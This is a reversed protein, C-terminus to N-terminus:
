SQLTVIQWTGQEGNITLRVNNPIALATKEVIAPIGYERAVIAGHSTQGGKQFIIGACKPFLISYEPSANPFIAITGAPIDMLSSTVQIVTGTVTGKSIPTGRGSNQVPTPQQTTPVPVPLTITIPNGSLLQERTANPLADTERVLDMIQRRLLAIYGLAKQKLRSRIRQVSIVTDALQKLSDNKLEGIRSQPTQISKDIQERIREPIEYWRPCTIEFDRDARNGYRDMYWDFSKEGSKVLYQDAVSHFIWDTEAVKSSIYSEITAKQAGSQHLSYQHFYEAVYGVAIVAPMVVTNIHTDLEIFTLSRKPVAVADVMQNMITIIGDPNATWTSQVAILKITQWIHSPSLLRLPHISLSPLHTHDTQTGYGLVTDAYLMREEASVDVLLEGDVCILISDTSSHFPLGLLQMATGFSGYGSFWTQLFSLTVPTPHDVIEAIGGSYLLQKATQQTGSKM